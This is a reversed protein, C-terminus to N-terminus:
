NLQKTGYNQLIKKASSIIGKILLKMLQLKDREVMKEIIKEPHRM